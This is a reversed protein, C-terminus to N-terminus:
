VCRSQMIIISDRHRGLQKLRRCIEIGNLTPLEMDLFVVDPQEALITDLGAQGDDIETIDTFGCEEMMQRLMRRQTISDDIILIRITSYDPNNVPHGDEV